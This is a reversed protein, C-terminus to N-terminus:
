TALSNFMIRLNRIQNGANNQLLKRNIRTLFTNLMRVYINWTYFWVFFIIAYLYEFCQQRIIIIIIGYNFNM